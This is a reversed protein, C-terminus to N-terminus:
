AAEKRNLFIWWQSEGLFGGTVPHTEILDAEAKYGAPPKYSRVDDQGNWRFAIIGGELWHRTGQRHAKM